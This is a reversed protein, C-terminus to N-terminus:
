SCLQPWETLIIIIIIIITVPYIQM